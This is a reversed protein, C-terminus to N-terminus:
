GAPPAGVRLRTAFGDALAEYISEPCLLRSAHYAAVTTVLLPLLLQRAETMEVIIIAVTMPSQVVGCFYAGMALLIVAQRPIGVLLPAALDGLGAGVSLSPTFLGGPIASILALYNAAAKALPYYFPLPEGRLVAMVQADGAGYTLGGSIVGLVAMALGLSAAVVYPRRRNLRSVRPTAVVVARAFAGGLLGGAAGILPLWLWARADALGAEVRGYFLYNGLVAVCALCAVLVTRIMLSANNKEFARGIEEIAFVLGAIPANFAAGIGAAGGALILGREVHNPAFSALRNALYLACAAVHVSPGERGVTAGAFLAMTLLIMKGVLIRLSLVSARTPGEGLRLAVIAQPIGTGETGPFLRDRARMIVVMGVGLLLPPLYPSVERLRAAFLLSWREAYVFYLAGGGAAAAALLWVVQRWLMRAM